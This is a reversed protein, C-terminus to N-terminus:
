DWLVPYPKQTEQSGTFPRRATWRCTPEHPQRGLRRLTPVSKLWELCAVCGDQGTPGSRTFPIWTEVIQLVGQGDGGGGAVVFSASELQGQLTM